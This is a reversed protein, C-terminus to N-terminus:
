RLGQPGAKQPKDFELYTIGAVRGDRMTNVRMKKLTYAGGGIAMVEEVRFEKLLTGQKDHGRVQMFAGFKSHIWVYVVAYNGGEGPNNLRIKYCTEGKVSETGELVPRPWYFFRFALDEYTLDSGALPQVLKRRDFAVEKGDIMELLSAAEDGMRIHFRQKGEDLAFQINQGRLFLSVKTRASDKRIVGHLDTQQLTASMRAQAMIVAADPKPGAEPEARVEVGCGLMAGLGALCGIWRMRAATM